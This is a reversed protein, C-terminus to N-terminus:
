RRRMVTYRNLNGDDLWDDEVRLGAAVVLEEHEADDICHCYRLARGGRRWDLLCDGEEAPLGAPWPAVRERLKPSDLFRWASFVLWGGPMVCAAASRLLDRRRQGGPVHHLLGFLALVAGSRDPLGEMVIDRELLESQVHPYAALAAAAITLLRANNDIGCYAFPGAQRGALYRAFRGNGCGIDVLSEVPMRLARMVRGWGSWPRQRTADFERAVTAYFARNIDNLRQAAAEDM